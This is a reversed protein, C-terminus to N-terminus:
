KEAVNKHVMGFHFSSSHSSFCHMSNFYLSFFYREQCQEYKLIAELQICIKNKTVRVPIRYLQLLVYRYHLFFADVPSRGSRYFHSKSVELKSLVSFLGLWKVYYFLLATFDKEKRERCQAKGERLIDRGKKGMKRRGRTNEALICHRGGRGGFLLADKLASKDFLDDLGACVCLVSFLLLLLLFYLLHRNEEKRCYVRYQVIAFVSPEREKRGKPTGTTTCM